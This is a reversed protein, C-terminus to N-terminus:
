SKKKRKGAVFDPKLANMGGTRNVMDKMTINNEKGSNPNEIAENHAKIDESLRHVNYKRIPIPM